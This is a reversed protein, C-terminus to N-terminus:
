AHVSGPTLHHVANALTRRTVGLEALNTSTVTEGHVVELAAALAMLDGPVTSLTYEKRVPPSQEFLAVRRNGAYTGNRDEPLDAPTIPRGARLHRRMDTLADSWNDANRANWAARAEWYKAEAQDQQEEWQARHAALARATAEALAQRDFKM